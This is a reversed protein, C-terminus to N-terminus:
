TYATSNTWVLTSHAQTSKRREENAIREEYLRADTRGAHQRPKWLHPKQTQQQRTTEARWFYTFKYQHHM